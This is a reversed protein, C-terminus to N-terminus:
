CGAEGPVPGIVWLEPLGQARVAVVVGAVDYPVVLGPFEPPAGLLGDFAAEALEGALATDERDADRDAVASVPEDKGETDSVTFGGFVLGATRDM